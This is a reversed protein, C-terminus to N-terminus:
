KKINQSLFNSSYEKERSIIVSFPKLFLSLDRNYIHNVFGDKALMSMANKIGRSEDIDPMVILCDLIEEVEDIAKQNLMPSKLNMLKRNLEITKRCSAIHQYIKLPKKPNETIKEEAERILEDLTYKEDFFRPFYTKMKKLGVGKLGPINDSDDGEICKVFLANKHTYGFIDKFNETNIVKGDSPRLLSVNEQILQMFDKDSSFIIIQEDEAKKKVYFALLDDAEVYEVEVQRICLEELYNKVKIKQNLISYKREKEEDIEESTFFYSEEEWSKRDGKYLPYIERRFAGSMVGDWFVVVRDPMTKDIVSRLSDLFGFSGGCHEGKSFLDQRKKFNRKLNWEGDILLTRM